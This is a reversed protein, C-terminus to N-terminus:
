HRTHHFRRAPHVRGGHVSNSRCGPIKRVPTGVAGPITAVTTVNGQCDIASLNQSLQQTALVVSPIAAVGNPGELTAFVTPNSMPADPAGPAAASKAVTARQSPNAAYFMGTLALLAVITLYIKTRLTFKTRKKM